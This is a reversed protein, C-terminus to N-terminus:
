SNFAELQYAPIEKLFEYKEEHYNMKACIHDIGNSIVIYQVRYVFNYRAAQDFVSQSIKVDPSKCEVLMIPKANTDFVLVDTRKNLENLKLGKELSILGKPYAKHHILYQVFHQRVWEEPTCVVYKKRVEDLILYKDEDKKLKFPYYPLNLKQM